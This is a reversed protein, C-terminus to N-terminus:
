INNNNFEICMPNMGNTRFLILTTSVNLHKISNVKILHDLNIQTLKFNRLVNLGSNIIIDRNATCRIERLFKYQMTM